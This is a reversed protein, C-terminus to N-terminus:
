RLASSHTKVPVNTQKLVHDFVDYIENGELIEPMGM